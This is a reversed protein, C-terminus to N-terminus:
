KWCGYEYGLQRALIRTTNRIQKFEYQPIENMKTNSAGIKEELISTDLTINLYKELPATDFSGSCLDEYKILLGDVDKYGDVFGSALEYWHQAFDKPTFVPKNPWQKYWTRDQRYSAYAYYPNRYLFLFKAQPYLWRLYHAHDITLRVDKVGWSSFGRAAAPEQFLTQIYNLNARKLQSIEPYLNAVWLQSLQTTDYQDILWNNAPWKDTIAKIPASLGDFIAAHSYPEGWILTSNKSMILRQLLTSGSRWGASFIFVPQEDSEKETNPWRQQIIRLGNKLTAPAALEEKHLERALQTGIKYELYCQLSKAAKYLLESKLIAKKSHKM